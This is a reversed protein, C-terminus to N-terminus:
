GPSCRRRRLVGALATRTCVLVQNEASLIRGRRFEGSPSESSVSTAAHEREKQLSVPRVGTFVVAAALVTAAISIFVSTHNM